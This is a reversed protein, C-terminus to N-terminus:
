GFLVSYRGGIFNNHDIIDSKLKIALNRLYSNNKEVIFLNKSKNETLLNTNTITELTNGSKSVIINLFKKNNKNLEINEDLDDYFLVKKKVKKKLFDFIAKTGLISGGMGIIRLFNYKKLKTLLKRSYNNKYTNKQSNLIENNKALISNLDKYLSKFNKIKKFGQYKIKTM